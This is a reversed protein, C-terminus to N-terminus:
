SRLHAVAEDLEALVAASDLTGTMVKAIAFYLNDAIELNYGTDPPAIVTDTGALTEDLMKLVLADANDLTIIDPAPPLYGEGAMAVMRERSTFVKLFAVAEDYLETKANIVYGTTVGMISTQDGKGGEIAPLNFYDCDFIDSANERMDAVMWNGLPHMAAEGTYFLVSAEEDTLASMDDNLYGKEGLEKLYDFAKVFEPTNFDAQGTLVADYAEEGVVRCIIHSGWNGAVWFAKNGVAFPIVGEQKLTESIAMMGSWTEPIQLNYEDFIEKNYWIMVTIDTSEPVLHRQGDFTSGSFASEFFENGWEGSLEPIPQLYGENMRDILRHGSWEFYIDPSNRGDLMTPLGMSQYLDREQLVFEVKVGPNASEYKEKAANFISMISDEQFQMGVRLIKGGDAPETGEPEADTTATGNGKGAGGCASIAAIMSLCLLLMILKKM